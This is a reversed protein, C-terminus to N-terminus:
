LSRSNTEIRVSRSWKLLSFGARAPRDLVHVLVLELALHLVVQDEDVRLQAGVVVGGRAELRGEELALGLGDGVARGVEVAGAAEVDEV